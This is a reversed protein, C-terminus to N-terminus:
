WILRKRRHKYIERAKFVMALFQRDVTNEKSFCTNSILDLNKWSYRTAYRSQRLKMGFMAICAAQRYASDAENFNTLTDTCNFVLSQLTTDFPLQYNVQIQAFPKEREFSDVPMLEFIAVLSQGSGVEGGEMKVTTDRLARKKNEYGVLRYSKVVTTDFCTNIWVKDAVTYVTQTFEKVFVKDAEAENDIYSFNGQGKEALVSLKSDKYNGMGVGMCSLYIGSQKQQGILDELDKETTYGVNFDGDTALIIRNNGQRNFRKKAIKYALRIGAEGPTSGGADMGEVADLIKKREIGSAGEVIINIQGGYTIISVTDIARLNNILLRLGAKLLPLKNPLDMSGSVDILFVLNSPPISSLDMKRACISQYFLVSNKNWPCSSLYSNCIFVEGPPPERYHFNFYNLMEEIRVADPPVTEKMNLFRRINSFSAKNANPSFIAMQSKATLVFPNEVLTSYSEGTTRFDEGSIKYNKLASALHNRKLNATTAKMVMLVSIYDTAVIPKYTPEYGDLSFRLTDVLSNSIIGFDGYSGSHFVQQSSHVIIRVNQLKNGYQDKM